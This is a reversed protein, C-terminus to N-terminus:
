DDVYVLFDRLELVLEQADDVVCAGGQLVANPFEADGVLGDRVVVLGHDSEALYARENELGFRYRLLYGHGKFHQGLGQHDQM